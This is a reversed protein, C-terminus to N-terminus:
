FRGRTYLPHNYARPPERDEHKTYIRTCIDEEQHVSQGRQGGDSGKQGAELPEPVGQLARCTALLPQVWQM